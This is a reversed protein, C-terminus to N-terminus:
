SIFSIVGKNEEAATKYFEKMAVFYELLYEKGDASEWIEPYVGHDTMQQGDYHQSLHDATIKDLEKTLKKVQDPTIYQAPGYGMDQDESVTKDGFVVWALPPAAEDIQALTFGTVAYFIGEWAKDLYLLGQIASEDDAYVKEELLTPNNLIDQLEKDTVQLLNGIM